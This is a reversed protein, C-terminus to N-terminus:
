NNSEFLIAAGCIIQPKLPTTNKIGITFGALQPGQSMDPAPAQYRQEFSNPTLIALRGRNTKIIIDEDRAMSAEGDTFTTLFPEVEVPNQAVLCVEIIKNATNEHQQYEDKWFYEPQFQQCTFFAAMPMLPSSVFNLGFSVTVSEKSPLIAQRSFEFPEYTDLGAQRTHQNDGLFSDTDMVLMSCGQQKALYHQNFAAFSFHGPQPPTIKEPEAVTLLELFFGDLQVICNHTGFPHRARPTVTFGLQRYKEAAADLDNVCVVLHDLGKM